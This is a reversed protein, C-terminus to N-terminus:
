RREIWGTGNCGACLGGDLVFYKDVSNGYSM